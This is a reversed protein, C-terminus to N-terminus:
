SVLIGARIWAEDLRAAAPDGRFIRDRGLRFRYGTGKEILIYVMDGEEDLGHGGVHGERVARYGRRTGTYWYVDTRIGLM